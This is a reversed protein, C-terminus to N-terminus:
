VFIHKLGAAAATTTASETADRLCEISQPQATNRLANCLGKCHVDKM